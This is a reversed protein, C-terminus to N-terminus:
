LLLCLQWVHGRVDPCDLSDLQIQPSRGSWLTGSFLCFTQLDGVLQFTVFSLLRSKGKQFFFYIYVENWSFFLPLQFYLAEKM